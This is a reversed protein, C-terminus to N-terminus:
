YDFAQRWEVTITSLSKSNVLFVHQVAFHTAVHKLRFNIYLVRGIAANIKNNQAKIESM